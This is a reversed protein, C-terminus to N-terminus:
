IRDLHVKISVRTISRGNVLKSTEVTSSTISFETNSAVEATAISDVFVYHHVDVTTM